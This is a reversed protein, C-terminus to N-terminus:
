MLGLSVAAKKATQRVKRYARNVPELMPDIMKVSVQTELRSPRLFGDRIELQPTKRGIMWICSGVYKHAIPRYGSMLMTNHLSVHDFQVAHGWNMYHRRQGATGLFDEPNWAFYHCSPVDVFLLGDEKLAGRLSRLCKVPEDVHELFQATYVIDATEALAPAVEPFPRCELERGLEKALAVMENSSEFGRYQFGANLITNRAGGFGAGVDAVLSGPKGGNAAIWDMRVKHQPHVKSTDDFTSDIYRYYDKETADPKGSRKRFSNLAARRYINEPGYLRTLAAESWRPNLFLLGCASCLDYRVPRRSEGLEDFLTADIPSVERTREYFKRISNSACSPCDNREELLSTSM